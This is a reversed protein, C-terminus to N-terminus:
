QNKQHPTLSIQQDDLQANSLCNGGKTAILLNSSYYSDINKEQIKMNFLCAKKIGIYRIVKYM